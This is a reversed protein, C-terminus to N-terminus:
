VISTWSNHQWRTTEEDDSDKAILQANDKEPVVHSPNYRCPVGNRNDIM